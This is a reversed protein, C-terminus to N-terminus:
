VGVIGARHRADLPYVLQPLLGERGPSRRKRVVVVHRHTGSASADPFYRFRKTKEDCRGRVRTVAVGTTAGAASEFGEQSKEGGRGGEGRACATTFVPRRAHNRGPPPQTPVLTNVPPSAPGVPKLHHLPRRRRPAPDDRVGRVPVAATGSARPPRRAPGPAAAATRRRRPSWHPASTRRAGDGPLNREDARLTPRLVAFSTNLSPGRHPRAERGHHLRAYRSERPPFERFLDHRADEVRARRAARRRRRRRTRDRRRDRRASASHRRAVRRTEAGGRARSVSAVSAVAGPASGDAGANSADMSAGEPEAVDEPELAGVVARRRRPTRTQRRRRRSPPHRRRTRRALPSKRIRCSSQTAFSQTGTAFSRPRPSSFRAHRSRRRRKGFPVPDRVSTYATYTWTPVVPNRPLEACSAPPARSTAATACRATRRRPPTSRTARARAAAPSDERRAAFRVRTLCSIDRPGSPPPARRM